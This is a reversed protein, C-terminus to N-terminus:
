YSAIAFRTRIPGPNANVSSATTRVDRRSRRLEGSLVPDALGSARRRKMDQRWTSVALVKTAGTRRAPVLHAADDETASM